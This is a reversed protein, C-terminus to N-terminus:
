PVLPRTAPSLGGRKVVKRAKKAAVMVNNVVASGFVMAAPMLTVFGQKPDKARYAAWWGVIIVVTPVVVLKLFLALPTFPGGLALILPNSEVGGRSVVMWTTLVDLLNFALVVATFLLLV